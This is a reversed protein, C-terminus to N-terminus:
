TVSPDGVSALFLPTHTAVDELLLLFPRDFSLSREPQAEASSEVAIGTAGAAVTGLEDVTMVDKQVVQSIISGGLGSYDGDLPLGMGALTKLLDHTQDLHMQPLAVSTRGTTSETLGKLEAATPLACAKTGKPPLIAVAQLTGSRYLIQAAQWGGASSYGASKASDMLWVQKAGDGTTFPSKAQRLLFPERWKAKLVIANTLVASTQPDVPQDFLKPILGDTDKGVQANITDTASQAHRLYDLTQLTAGYATRVDDLYKSTPPNGAAPWVRNSTRLTDNKGTALRDLIARHDHVAAVVAPAWVPLHLLKAMAKATDGGTSADLLGLADAASAPSVLTNPGDTGCVKAMLDLGFQQQAASVDRATLSGRHLQEVNGALRTPIAQPAATKTQGCGALVLTVATAAVVGTRARM